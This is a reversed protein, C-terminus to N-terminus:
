TCVNLNSTCYVEPILSAYGIANVYGQSICSSTIQSDQQASYGAVNVHCSGLCTPPACCFRYTQSSYWSWPTVPTNVCSNSQCESNATCSTGSTKLTTTGNPVVGGGSTGLSSGFTMDMGAVPDKIFQYSVSGEKFIDSTQGAYTYSGKVKAYFTPMTSEFQATQIQSSVWTAEEGPNITKTTKIFAADLQTPTLQNITMTLPLEGTNKAKITFQMSAAGEALVEGTTSKVLTFPIFSKQIPKGNMDFFKTSIFGEGGGFLGELVASFSMTVLLVAIITIAGIAAYKKTKKNM